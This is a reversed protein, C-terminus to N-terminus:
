SDPPADEESAAITTVVEYGDGAETELVYRRVPGFFEGRQAPTCTPLFGRLVRPDYFRLFYEQGEEDRVVFVHRLQAFLEPLDAPTQLLVGANKGLAEAWRDLFELADRELPILIPGAHAVHTAMDGEFLTYLRHGFVRGTVALDAATAGDVLAYLRDESAEALLALLRALPSGPAQAVAPREVTSPEVDAFIELPERPPGPSTDGAASATGAVNASAAAGSAALGGAPNTSAIEAALSEKAESIEIRWVTAGAEVCDGDRLTAETIARGNMFTGNTSGLDTVRCVSGDWAIELHRRSLGDDPISLDCEPARGAILPTPRSVEVVEGASPGSEIRLKLTRM